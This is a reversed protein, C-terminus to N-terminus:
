AVPLGELQMIKLANTTPCPGAYLIYDFTMRGEVVADRFHFNTVGPLEDALHVLELDHTSILGVGRKGTLARVYARSGQLRERNNTGRFIEDILFLLPEQETQSLAELLAKLRKVEAYFYSIGDTVSDSVRVSSFLRFRSTTLAAAAVAGGAYSLALNLGVTRLFTSKGAMNSGTILAIDGLAGITIDNCVRGAHPILPHGLSTAQLVPESWTPKVAPFTYDPNLYAFTALASMAEVDYWTELWRPLQQRLAEKLAALRDTFYLDWPFLANLLLWLAPNKGVGTATVLRSLRRVYASPRSEPTRFPAALAAVNPMRHYSAHELHEFVLVLQELADRMHSAERFSTGTERSRSYILALYLVFGIQWIPPLLGALDLGLLTLNVAVLVGAAWLWPRLSAASSHTALWNLLEEGNWKEWLSAEAESRGPWPLVSRRAALRAFLWLRDRFLSQPVLERVMAQRAAMTEDAPVPAALWDRLRRSGGQSASTDLLRHLGFAGVLDVDAEFPHQFDPQAEAARPIDAWALDMRALHARRLTMWLRYQTVHEDVRRHRRVIWAFVSVVLLLAAGAAWWGGREFIGGVLLLGGFFTLLRAWAYRDSLSQLLSSRAELREIQRRIVQRRNARDM